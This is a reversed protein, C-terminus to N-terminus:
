NPLDKLLQPWVPLPINWQQPALRIFGEARKLVKEANHLMGSEHDPHHEMEILDSSLVSYKGDAQRIAAMIVVPVRAKLALYIHHTPLPAPWGFFRPHLRPDPMPRDIGTLVMGGLELHRVAQRLAGLSAPVLNMGMKRRAEYEVRRGGQPNPITLVLPNLGQRCLSQLIGDFNSLHIGLIMLGRGSFEPRGILEAALPNLLIRRKLAEPRQLHHYLDFLDRINNRLTLRVARDLAETDLSAGRAVWQNLRVARTIPSQRRAAVWDGILSCLPHGLAPPIAGAMASFLQVTRPSNIVQQLDISM